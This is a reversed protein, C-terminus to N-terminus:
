EKDKISGTSNGIKILLVGIIIWVLERVRTILGTYVGFASSIALGGTALAFGGERAGLQMPSFFFLNAFLSTFAMILICAIFSVDTTLINLIFYVELCGLVRAGFELGLSAYFTSKRQKHLEAIQSDVQELSDMKETMFRKAWNKIFPVHTLIRLTRVAMGNKYGKMFFYIAISCCFGVIGLMVGMGANLPEVALFLFVSFLWFCFHSFIHMMVYLIVSSTAKSGGVYPTLEMIRYPEGGMLGVPTAYNLAFGSVTLKYIKWFPVKAHKGDCIIIYWSLANMFYIFVWLLIVAPLWYGARHLNDFLESYDMDFTCLMIVIAFAGFFWFINRFKDKM